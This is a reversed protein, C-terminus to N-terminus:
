SKKTKRLGTSFSSICIESNKKKLCFIFTFFVNKKIELNQAKQIRNYFYFM